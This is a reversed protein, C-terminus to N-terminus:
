LLSTLNFGRTPRERNPMRMEKAARTKDRALNLLGAAVLGVVIVVVTVITAAM